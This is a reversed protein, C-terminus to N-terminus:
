DLLKINFNFKFLFSFKLMSIRLYVAISLKEYDRSSMRFGHDREFGNIRPLSNASQSSNVTPLEKRTEEREARKMCTLTCIITIFTNQPTSVTLQTPSPTSVATQFTSGVQRQSTPWSCTAAM